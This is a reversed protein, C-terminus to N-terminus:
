SIDQPLPQKKFYKEKIFVSGITFVSGILTIFCGIVIYDLRSFLMEMNAVDGITVSSFILVSATWIFGIFMLAIGFIMSKPVAKILKYGFVFVLFFVILCILPSLNM